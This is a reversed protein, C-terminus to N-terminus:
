LSWLYTLKLLVMRDKARHILTDRNENFVLYVHCRPKYIYDILLNTAIKNDADNWQLYLKAFLETSFSYTWRGALLHTRLSGNRYDLRNFTYSLDMNFSNSIKTNNTLTLSRTKGDYSDGWRYHISGALPRARYSRFELHHHYGLYAGQDLRIERIFDEGPLFDYRRHLGYYFFDESALTAWFNVRNERCVLTNHHDTKYELDNILSLSKLVDNNIWRTLSVTADTSRVNGREVFGMEPNFLTDVHTYRLSVDVWDKNLIVGADGAWEGAGVGPSFTRALSGNAILEPSFAFFADGGLTRNYADPSSQKNLVMLGINSNTFLDRKLKFATFNTSPEGAGDALVASQSQFNMVGLSYRGIRGAVKAGGYLPVRQERVIGITRSNFLMFESQSRAGVLSGGSSIDSGFKFLGASELFFERKEPLNVNFRTVNIIEEESEAQAFDTRYSLDMTLQPTAHYRVDLGGDLESDSDRPRYVYTRGATLYPMFELNLSYDPTNINRLAAFLSGKFKGNHGLGRPVPVLYTVEKRHKIERTINLGWDVPRGKKYKLSKFPIAMEVAWGRDNLSTKCQWICDWSKNIHNGEDSIIADVKVGFPNTGFAYSNRRDRFTDILLELADDSLFSGDRKKVTAFIKEPESDYCQIGFYLNHGDQLVRVETQEGSPERDLPEQQYFHALYPEADEWAPDDLKGDIRVPQRTFRVYIDIEPGASQGPLATREESASPPLSGEPPSALGQVAAQFAPCVVLPIVWHAAVTGIRRAFGLLGLIGIEQGPFAQAM